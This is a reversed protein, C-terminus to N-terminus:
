KFVEVYVSNLTTPITTTISFSNVDIYKPSAAIIENNYFVDVHPRLIGLNHTITYTNTGTALTITTSYRNAALSTTASLTSLQSQINASVGDLYSFETNSINGVTLGSFSPSASIALSQNIVDLLSKNTHNHSNALLASDINSDLERHWATWTAGFDYSGRKWVSQDGYSATRWEQWVQDGIDDPASWVRLVGWLTNPANYVNYGAFVGNDHYSNADLNAILYPIRNLKEYDLENIANQVTIASINGTAVNTIQSATYDGAVPVVAGLRGNWSFIESTNDIKDFYQGDYVIWDGVKWEIQGTPWLSASTNPNLGQPISTGSVNVIYFNGSTATATTLLPTNTSANWTGMYRLQGLIFDPIASTFVKNNSDVAAYGNAVGKESKLQYQTLNPIDSAILNGGSTVIGYHDTVVKTYTGPIKSNVLDIPSAPTGNGSLSPGVSVTSLFGGAILSQNARSGSIKEVSVLTWNGGIYRIIIKGIFLYEPVQVPIQGLNLDNPTLSQVLLLSANSTQPQIFVFRKNQSKTDAAQPITMVFIAAYDNNALPTNGWVGGSYTNIIPQNGTVQVIESASTFNINANAGSLTFLQYNKSSLGTNTTQLDEDAIRIQFIDPRRDTAVTSNLTFNTLDGGAILYTGINIHFEQHVQHQMIGHCERLTFQYRGLNDYFVAAIQLMDFSWPVNSWVVDNGNYYLFQTASIGLSHPESCWGASLEHVINGRWYAEVNGSLTVCRTLEDYSVIIEEPTSFGTPDHSIDGFNRNIWRNNEYIFSDGEKPNTIEVNYIDEISTESVVDVYIAGSTPHSITCYGLRTSYDPFDARASTFKGDTDLYFQQNAILNSTDIDRVEGYKTCYGYEGNPIDQTAIAIVYKGTINEKSAKAIHLVSDDAGSTIYVARGNEILEGSENHCYPLYFEMGVQQTVGNALELDYTKYKDNWRLPNAPTEEIFECYGAFIVESLPESTKRITITSASTQWKLDYLTAAEVSLPQQYVHRYESDYVDESSWLWGSSIDNFNQNISEVTLDSFIM